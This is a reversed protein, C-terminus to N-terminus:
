YKQLYTKGLSVVTAVATLVVSALLLPLLMKKPLISIYIDGLQHLKYRHQLFTAIKSIDDVAQENSNNVVEVVMHNITPRFAKVESNNDIEIQNQIAQSRILFVGEELIVVAEQSTLDQDDQKILLQAYYPEPKLLWWVIFILYLFSAIIYVWYNNKFFQIYVQSEKVAM